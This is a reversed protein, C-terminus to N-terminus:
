HSTAKLARLKYEGQAGEPKHDVSIVVRTPTPHIYLLSKAEPSMVADFGRSSLQAALAAAAKRSNEDDTAWVHVGTDLQPNTGFPVPGERMGLVAMADFVDWRAEHLTAAIDSAFSAAEIDEPNYSVLAPEGSFKALHSAMEFRAQKSLSRWAVKSELEVRATREDEAEKTLRAAEKENAAARDNAQAAIGQANALAIRFYGDKVKGMWVILATSVVGVVLSAILFWNALNYIRSAMEESPWM